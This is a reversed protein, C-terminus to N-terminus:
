RTCSLTIELFIIYIGRLFGQQLSFIKIFRFLNRYIATKKIINVTIRISTNNKYKKTKTIRGTWPNTSSLSTKFSIEKTLSEHTM